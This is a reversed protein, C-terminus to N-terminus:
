EVVKSLIFYKNDLLKNSIGARNPRILHYNYRTKKVKYYPVIYRIPFNEANKLPLNLLDRSYDRPVYNILVLSQGNVNESIMKYTEIETEDIASGMTNREEIWHKSTDLNKAFVFILLIIFPYKLYNEIEVVIFIVCFYFLPSMTRIGRWEQADYLAFLLLFNCLGILSIGLSIKNKKILFHIMFYFILGFNIYKMSQYVFSRQDELFYLNLNKFFHNFLSAIAGGIDGSKLLDLVSSFYNPLSENFLKTFVFSCVVGVIFLLWYKKSEDKTKALPILGILWFLWLSRFIGSLFITIVFLKIYIANDEKKYISYFLVSLVIAIFIQISEQMYTFGYLPLLPFMLIICSSWVKQDIRLSKMCTILIVAILVMIFNSYIFNLNSWGFINAIIGHFLPYGFGHADAGFIPSGEGSYTLAAKLTNNAVFSKVNVFYFFEDGWVPYYKESVSQLLRVYHYLIYYLLASALIRETWVWYTTKFLKIM